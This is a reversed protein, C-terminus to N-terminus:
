DGLPVLRYVIRPQYAAIVAPDWMAEALDPLRAIGELEPAYRGDILTLGHRAFPALLAADPDKAPTTAMLVEIIGNELVRGTVLAGESGADSAYVIALRDASGGLYVYEDKPPVDPKGEEIVMLRYHNDERRLIATVKGPAKIDDAFHEGVIMDYRGSLDPLDDAQSSAPDFRTNICGSLLAAVFAAVIMRFMPLDGELQMM